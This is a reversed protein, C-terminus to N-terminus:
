DKKKFSNIENPDVSNTVERLTPRRTITQTEAERKTQSTEKNDDAMIKTRREKNFFTENTISFSASIGIFILIFFLTELTKSSLTLNKSIKENIEKRKDFGEKFIESLDSYYEKENKLNKIWDITPKDLDLDSIKKTEFVKFTNWIGIFLLVIGVVLFLILFKDALNNIGNEFTWKGIAIFFGILALYINLYKNAKEEYKEKRYLEGKFMEKSFQYLKESIKKTM